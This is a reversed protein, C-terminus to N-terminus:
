ERSGGLEVVRHERRARDAAFALLHSALAEEPDSPAGNLVEVFRDVIGIDGEAHGFPSSKVPFSRRRGTAKDCLELAGRSGFVGRLSAKSGEIRLTRGEAHSHGQMRLSATIGSEFEIITEQHDVQDNGCRYVCRGYPGERLARMIGEPNLDETITSTPWEKWIAYRKLGPLAAALAPASLMLKAALAVPLDDSMSLARKMHIGKLYTATAEYLCSEAAPCGDTCREPAGEPAKDGRFRGLNGVSSVRVAKSGAFWQILDLDHCCKALIMPSSTGSNGWNGRVYSHAMHHYSVNEAHFISYVEGLEGSDILNKITKFFDTYRLVHCVTLSCGTGRAAESLAICDAESTAMPKELLVRYGAALAALAPAAHYQDQTAVIAGGALRPRRLLEGWDEFVEQAGLGHREAFAERRKLNPEAVAAIKLRDPHALAFDAYRNGRDGAGILICRQIM